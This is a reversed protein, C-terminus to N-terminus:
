KTLKQGADDTFKIQYANNELQNIETITGLTGNTFGRRYDNKTLKIREGVSFQYGMKRDAVRNPCKGLCNSRDRKCPVGAGVDEGVPLVSKNM